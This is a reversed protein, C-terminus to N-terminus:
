GVCIDEFACLVKGLFLRQSLEKKIEGAYLVSTIIVTAQLFEKQKLIDSTVIPIENWLFGKGGRDRDIIAVINKPLFDEKLYIRRLYAGMGWLIVPESITGAYPFFDNNISTSVYKRIMKADDCNKCKYHYHDRERERRQTANLQFLCSINFYTCYNEMVSVCSFGQSTFLEHLTVNNFHNIHERDFYHLPAIYGQYYKDANPVEIYYTTNKESVDRMSKIFTTIDFVHELVQICFIFNFTKNTALIDTFSPYFQIGDMKQRPASPELACLNNYGKQKLYHLVGGKGAGIDLIAADKPLMAQCFVFMNEYRHVDEASFGGSGKTDPVQYKNTTTYYIDFDEQTAKMDDFCFGCRGCVVVDFSSPLYEDVMPSLNISCLLEGVFCNCVPCNRYFRSM